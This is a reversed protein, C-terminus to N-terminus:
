RGASSCPRATNNRWEWGGLTAMLWLDSLSEFQVRDLKTKSHVFGRKGKQAFCFMKGYHQLTVEWIVELGLPTRRAKNPSQNEKMSAQRKNSNDQDKRSRGKFLHPKLKKMDSLQVPKLIFEEAGEELCRILKLFDRWDFALFLFFFSSYSNSYDQSNSYDRM